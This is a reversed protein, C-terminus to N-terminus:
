RTYPPVSGKEEVVKKLILKSFSVSVMAYGTDYLVVM